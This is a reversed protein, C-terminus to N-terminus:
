WPSSVLNHNVGAGFQKVVSKFCDTGPQYAQHGLQVCLMVISHVPPGYRTVILLSPVLTVSDRAYPAKGM